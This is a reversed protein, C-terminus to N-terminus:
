HFNYLKAFFNLLVSVKFCSSTTENKHPILNHVAKEFIEILTNQFKNAATKLFHAKRHDSKPLSKKRKMKLGFDLSFLLFFKHLLKGQAVGKKGYIHSDLSRRPM